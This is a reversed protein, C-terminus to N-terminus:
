KKRGLYNTVFTLDNNEFNKNLPHAIIAANNILIDIRGYENKIEQIFNRISAFDSLDIVKLEVFAHKTKKKICEM